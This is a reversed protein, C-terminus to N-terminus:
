RFSYYDEKSKWGEPKVNSIHIYNGKKSEYLNLLDYLEDKNVEKEEYSKKGVKIKSM